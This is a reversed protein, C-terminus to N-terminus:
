RARRPRRKGVPLRSAVPFRERARAVRRRPRASIGAYYNPPGYAGRGPRATTAAAPPSAPGTPPTSRAAGPPPSPSTATAPAPAADGDLRRRREPAAARAPTAAQGNARRPVIWIEPGDRGYGIGDPSDVIRRGGLAHLLADYFRAARALDAVEFGIHDIM